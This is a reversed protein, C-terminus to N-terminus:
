AMRLQETEKLEGYKIYDCIYGDPVKQLSRLLDIAIDMEQKTKVKFEHHGNNYCAEKKDKPLDSIFRLHRRVRNRIYENAEFVSINMNETALEAIDRDVDVCVSNRNSLMCAIGTTGLGAFPDLVTDGEASYMNILRYPIELPFSANRDRGKTSAITQGTGKIEWLDSFWVNREEWFFASKQRLEKERGKFIRKGGKRFVLIYEHEYTVYAGAPYMGSGMFKNPSNSPKRWHIDPLVCYGMKLFANIIRTHNSFLQFEDNITRTADGINICVFGNTKLVRNCETWVQDLLIHMRSFAEMGRGAALSEEVAPNQASFMKDWMEIMPYPPSTVILDVTEDDLMPLSNSNSVIIRHNTM